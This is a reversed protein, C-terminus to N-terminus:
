TVPRQKPCAVAFGRRPETCRSGHHCLSTGNSRVRPIMNNAAAKILAFLPVSAAVDPIPFISDPV